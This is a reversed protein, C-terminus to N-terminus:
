RLVPRYNSGCRAFRLEFREGSRTHNELLLARPRAGRGSNMAVIRAAERPAGYGLGVWWDHIPRLDGPEFGTAGYTAADPMVAHLRRALETADRAVRAGMREQVVARTQEDVWGSAPADMDLCWLVDPLKEVSWTEQVAEYLARTQEADTKSPEGFVFSCVDRPRDTELAPEYSSGEGMVWHSLREEITESADDLPVLDFAGQDFLARTRAPPLPELRHLTDGCRLVAGEDKRMFLPAQGQDFAREAPDTLYADTAHDGRHVRGRRRASARERWGRRPRWYAGGYPEHLDITVRTAPTAGARASLSEEGEHFSRMQRTDGVLLRGWTFMPDHPARHLACALTGPREVVEFCKAHARVAELRDDPTPTPAPEPGRPASDRGAQALEGRGAPEPEGTRPAMADPDARPAEAERDCAVLPVCTMLVLARVTAPTKM